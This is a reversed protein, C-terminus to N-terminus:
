KLEGEILINRCATGGNSIVIPKNLDGPKARMLRYAGGLKHMSHFRHTTLKAKAM